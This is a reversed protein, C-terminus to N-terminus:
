FSFSSVFMVGLRPETKLRAQTEGPPLPANAVIGDGLVQAKPDIRLGIGLNWSSHPNNTLHDRFGIMWGLGYADIIENGSTGGGQIAVFPGTGWTNAAVAGGLMPLDYQPLFFYHSELVLSTIADSVETVRVVNNVVTASSV